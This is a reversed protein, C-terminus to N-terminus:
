KVDVLIAQEMDAKMQRLATIIAVPDTGTNMITYNITLTREQNSATGIGKINSEEKTDGIIICPFEPITVGVYNRWELVANGINTQYGNAILINKFRTEVASFIQQRLSTSM